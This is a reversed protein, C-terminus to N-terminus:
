KDREGWGVVGLLPLLVGNHVDEAFDLLADGAEEAALVLFVRVGVLALGAVVEVGLVALVAEQTKRGLSGAVGLPVDVSAGVKPSERLSKFTLGPGGEFLMTAGMEPSVLALIHHSQDYQVSESAWSVMKM